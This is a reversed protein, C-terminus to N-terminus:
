RLEKCYTEQIETIKSQYEMQILLIQSPQSTWGRIFPVPRKFQLHSAPCTNTNNPGFDFSSISEIQAFLLFMITTLLWIKDGSISSNKCTFLKRLNNSKVKYEQM